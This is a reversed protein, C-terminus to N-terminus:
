PLPSGLLGLARDPLLLLHLAGESPLAVQHAHWRIGDRPLAHNWGLPQDNRRINALEGDLLNAWIARVATAGGLLSVLWLRYGPGDPGRQRAFAELFASFGACSISHIPSHGQTKHPQM